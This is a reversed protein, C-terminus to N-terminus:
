QVAFRGRARGLFRARMETEGFWVQMGTSTLWDEDSTIEVPMATEAYSQRPRVTLESTRLHIPRAEGRGERDAFVQGHLLLWERDGSIWGSESRIDWPPGDPRNLVLVPLDLESSDDDPYHRMERATLSRAPRGNPDMTTATFQEVTYDPLRARVLMPPAEPAQGSQQWWAVGGVLTLVLALVRQRVTFAM